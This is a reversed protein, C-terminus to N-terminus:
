FNKNVDSCIVKVLNSFILQCKYLAQHDLYMESIRETEKVCVGVGVCM